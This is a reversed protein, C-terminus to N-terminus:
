HESPDSFFDNDTDDTTKIQIIGREAWSHCRSCLTILNDPTSPGGRQVHHVQLGELTACVRCQHGDREKVLARIHQWQKTNLEPRSAGTRTCIPCATGIYIHGRSCM